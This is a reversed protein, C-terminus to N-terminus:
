EPDTEEDLAGDPLEEEPEAYTATDLHGVGTRDPVYAVLVESTEFGANDRATVTVEHAGVGLAHDDPDFDFPEPLACSVSGECDHHEILIDDVRVEIAALRALEIDDEATAEADVQYGREHLIRKMAAAEALPGSLDIQPGHQGYAEALRTVSHPGPLNSYTNVAGINGNFSLCDNNSAENGPARQIGMAEGISRCVLTRKVYNTVNSDFNSLNFLAHTHRAHYGAPANNVTSDHVSARWGTDGLYGDKLEIHVRDDNSSPHCAAQPPVRVGTEDRLAHWDQRADTAKARLSSDQDVDNCTTYDTTHHHAWRGQGDYRLEHGVALAAPLALLLACLLLVAGRPVEADRLRRRQPRDPPPDGTAPGAGPGGHAGTM